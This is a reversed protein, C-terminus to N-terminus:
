RSEMKVHQAQEGSSNESGSIKIFPYAFQQHYYVPLDEDIGYKEPMRNGPLHFTGFLLDIFPLQAAFNTNYADPQNGHHWHHFQPSALVWKLPGFAIRTNSHVLLSQWQYIAAYIVIAPGSFGLAFVPLLSATMTAIQDLPHVRHAALWDLEKIGHHISHFRWLVPIAHFARHALYFGTDAIILIEVVQLWTPQTSVFEHVAPPIFQNLVGLFVAFISILAMKIIIGNVVVYVIDNKWHKRFIKQDKRLAAVRELPVFVLAAILFAKLSVLDWIDVGAGLYKTTDGASARSPDLNIM